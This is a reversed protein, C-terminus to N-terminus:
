KLQMGSGDFVGVTVPVGTQISQTVTCFSEFQELVRELHAIEGGAKGMRIEVSINQV